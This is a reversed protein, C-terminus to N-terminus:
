YGFYFLHSLHFQKQWEQKLRLWIGHEAVMDLDSCNDFWEMLTKRDRGTNLVVVTKSDGSLRKLISILELDPKAQIPDNTFPILTGDYSLIILRTNAEQFDDLLKLHKEGILLPVNGCRNQDATDVLRHVFDIAWTVNEKGDANNENSKTTKSIQDNMEILRQEQEEVPMQLARKLVKICEDENTSDVRVCGQLHHCSASIESIVLIGTKLNLRTSVYEMSFMNVSTLLTPIFAIDSQAYIYRRESKSMARHMLIVPKWTLTALQGNLRGVQKCINDIINEDLEDVQVSDPPPTPPRPIGYYTESNNSSITTFRDACPTLVEADSTSNPENEESAEDILLYILTIKGHLDPNKELLTKFLYITSSLCRNRSTDNVAVMYKVKSDPLDPDQSHGSRGVLLWESVTSALSSVDGYASRFFDVDVCPNFADVRLEHNDLMIRGLDNDKGLLHYVTTLFNRVWHHTYLGILDCSLLGNLLDNRWPLLRYVEQDPFACHLFFGIPSTCGEDGGFAERLMSPLLMLEYDNVFFIDSPRTFARINECFTKNMQRYSDWELEEVYQVNHPLYHFLPWITRRAYEYCGHELEDASLFVPIMNKKGLESFVIAQEPSHHTVPCNLSDLGPVLLGPWGFWLIDFQARQLANFLDSILEHAPDLRPSVTCKPTLDGAASGKELKVNVPLSFTVIVVRRRISTSSFSRRGPDNGLSSQSTKSDQQPNRDFVM